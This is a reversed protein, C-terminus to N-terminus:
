LFEKQINNICHEREGTLHFMIWDIVREQWKGHYNIGVYSSITQGVPVYFLCAIFEDIGILLNLWYPRKVMAGGYFLCGGGFKRLLSNM